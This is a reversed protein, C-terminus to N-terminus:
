SPRPDGAGPLLARAAEIRLPLDIAPDNMVQLLFRQAQVSAEGADRRTANAAGAPAASVAPASASALPSLGQAARQLDAAPISHLRTLLEAQADPSPALDLWPEGTFLSALDSAVFASWQGPARERPPARCAAAADSVPAPGAGAVEVQTHLAVLHPPVDALYRRCLAQLFFTAEGPPLPQALSFWLQHSRLGSIAIAPAPLALDAQVGQWVTALENWGAPLALELVMARTGASRVAAAPDGQGAGPVAGPGPMLYLRQLETHLRNM